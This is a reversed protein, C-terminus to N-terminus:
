WPVGRYLINISVSVGCWCCSWQLSVTTCHLQVSVQDLVM